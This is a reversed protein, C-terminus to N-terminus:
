PVDSVHIVSREIGLHGKYIGNQDFMPVASVTVQLTNGFADLSQTVYSDLVGHKEILYKELERAKEQYEGKLFDSPKKGILDCPRFGYITESKQSVYDYEGNPNTTFVWDNTLLALDNFAKEKFTLEEVLRERKGEMDALKDTLEILKTLNSRDDQEGNKRKFINLM